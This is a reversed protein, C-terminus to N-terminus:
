FFITQSLIVVHAGGAEGRRGVQFVQSRDGREAARLRSLSRPRPRTVVAFTSSVGITSRSRNCANLPRHSTSYQSTAVLFGHDPTWMTEVQDRSTHPDQPSRCVSCQNSNEQQSNLAGFNGGGGEPNTGSSLRCLKKPRLNHAFNKRNQYPAIAANM